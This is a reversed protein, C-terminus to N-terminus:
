LVDVGFLRFMARDADKEFLAVISDITGHHRPIWRHYITWLGDPTYDLLDLPFPKNLKVRFSSEIEFSGGRLRYKEFLPTKVYGEHVRLSGSPDGAVRSQHFLHLISM